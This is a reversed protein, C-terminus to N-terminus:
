MSNKEQEKREDEGLTRRRIKCVASGLSTKKMNM